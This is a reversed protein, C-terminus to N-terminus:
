AGRKPTLSALEKQLLSLERALQVDGTREAYVRARRVGDLLNPIEFPVDAAAKRHEHASQVASRLQSALLRATTDQRGDALLNLGNACLATKELAHALAVEASQRSARRHGAEYSVATAIVLVLIGGIWKIM